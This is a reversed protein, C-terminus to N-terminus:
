KYQTNETECKRPSTLATITTMETKKKQKQKKRPRFIFIQLTSIIFELCFIITFSTFFGLSTLFRPGTLLFFVGALTIMCVSDLVVFVLLQKQMAPMTKQSKKLKNAANLRWLVYIGTSLFFISLVSFTLCAVIATVLLTLQTFRIDSLVVRLGAPILEGCLILCGALVLFVITLPSITVSKKSLNVSQFWFVSIALTACMSISWFGTAFFLHVRSSYITTVWLPDVALYSFRLLNCILEATLSIIPLIPLVKVNGVAKSRITLVLFVAATIWLFGSYLAFLVQFGLGYTSAVRAYSAPGSSLVVMTNSLNNAQVLEINPVFCTCLPWTYGGTSGNRSVWWDRSLVDFGDSGFAFEILGACGAANCNLAMLEYSCGGPIVVPQRTVVQPTLFAVVKGSVNVMGGSCLSDQQAQTNLFTVERTYNDFSQLGFVANNYGGMTGTAALPGSSFTCAGYVLESFLVLVVISLRRAM